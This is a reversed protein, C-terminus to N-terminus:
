SKIAIQMFSHLIHLCPPKGCDTVITKVFVPTHNIEVIHNQKTHM